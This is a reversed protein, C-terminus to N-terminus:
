RKSNGQALLKVAEQDKERQSARWMSMVAESADAKVGVVVVAPLKIKARQWCWLGAGIALVMWLAVVARALGRALIGTASDYRYNQM